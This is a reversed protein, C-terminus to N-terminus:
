LLHRAASWLNAKQDQSGAFVWSIPYLKKKLDMQVIFLCCSMLHRNSAWNSREQLEEVEESKPLDAVATQTPDATSSDENHSLPAM